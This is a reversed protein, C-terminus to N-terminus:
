GKKTEEELQKIDLKTKYDKLKNVAKVLKEQEEVFPKDKSEEKLKQLKEQHTMREKFDKLMEDLLKQKAVQRKAEEENLTTGCKGCYIMTASNMENCNLCKKPKLLELSKQQKKGTEVGALALFTDKSDTGHLHTYRSFMRSSKGWRFMKKAMEDSVRVNKDKATWTIKSHRLWHLSIIESLGAQKAYRKLTLNVVGKQVGHFRGGKVGSRKRPWLPSEPNHKFPHHNLWNKLLPAFLVVPFSSSGTKGSVIIDYGYSTETVDKVRLSLLEGKRLAGEVCVGFMAKDRAYDIVDLLRFFEEQSLWKDKLKKEWDIKKPKIKRWFKPCVEDDPDSLWKALRKFLILNLNWTSASYNESIKRLVKHVVKEDLYVADFSQGAFREFMQLAYKYSDVTKSSLDHQTDFFSSFVSM